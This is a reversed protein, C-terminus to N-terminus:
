RASQRSVRIPKGAVIVEVSNTHLQPFQRIAVWSSRDIPVRFELDHERGDAPVSRSAVAKGNVVIEALREGGPMQRESRPGHLTVTDGILRRGGEPARTGYAVAEPTEPSFAVRATVAVTGASELRVTDG